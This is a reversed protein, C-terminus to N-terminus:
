VCFAAPAAEEVGDPPVACGGVPAFPLPEGAASCGRSGTFSASRANVNLARKAECGRAEPHYLEAGPLDLRCMEEPIFRDGAGGTTRLITGRLTRACCLLGSACTRLPRFHVDIGGESLRIHEKLSCGDISCQHVPQVALKGSWELHHDRIRNVALVALMHEDRFSREKETLHLLDGAKSLFPQGDYEVPHQHRVTVRHVEILKM